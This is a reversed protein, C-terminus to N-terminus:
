AAEMTLQVAVGASEAPAVAGWPTVASRVLREITDRRRVLEARHESTIAGPPASVALRDGDLRFRAGLAELADMFEGCEIM